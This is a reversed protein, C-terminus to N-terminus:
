GTATEDTGVRLGAPSIKAVPEADARLSKALAALAQPSFGRAAVRNQTETLRVEKHCVTIAKPATIGLKVRNPGIEIVQIEIDDGILIAEGARRCTILM